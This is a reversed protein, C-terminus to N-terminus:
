PAQGLREEVYRAVAEFLVERPYENNLAASVIAGRQQRAAATASDGAATEQWGGRLLARRVALRTGILAINFPMGQHAGSEDVSCCPLAELASRLTEVTLDVIEDEAYLGEPDVTMYDATFGPMPVIFTFNFSRLHASTFDLNM